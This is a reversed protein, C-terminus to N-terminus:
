VCVFVVLARVTVHRSVPTATCDFSTVCVCMCVFVCVCVKRLEERSDFTMRAVKHQEAYRMCALSKSPNAVIISDASRVCVCVCVCLIYVTLDDALIIPLTSCLTLMLANKLPSFSFVSGVIRQHMTRKRFFCSTSVVCVCVCVCVCVFVCLCVCVCVCVCVYRVNKIALVTSIEYASACDFGAGADALVNLLVIDNCCKMAPHTHSTHRSHTLPTCCKV